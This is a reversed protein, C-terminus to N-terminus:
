VQIFYKIELAQDFTMGFIGDVVKRTEEIEM